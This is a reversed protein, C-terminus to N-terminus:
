QAVELTIQTEKSIRTGAAPTQHVIMGRSHFRASSIAPMPAATQVDAAPSELMPAEVQVKPPPFGAQVIKRVIPAARKGVLEPMVYTPAEPPLASLLGVRPSLVSQAQPSPSQAIVSGMDVDPLRAQAATGLELGRRNLNIEAARLSEGVVNPVVARQPGLSEAVRIRLGRRVKSGKEPMQSMITGPAAQPSYFKGESSLVLGQSLAVQDAQAMTLGVLQPVRVERGHIAFRMATVASSLAILVLVLARIVARLYKM